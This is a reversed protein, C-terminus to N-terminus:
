LMGITATAKMRETCMRGQKEAAGEGGAAEMM